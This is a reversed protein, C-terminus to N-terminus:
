VSSAEGGKKTSTKAADFNLARRHQAVRKSRHLYHAYQMM